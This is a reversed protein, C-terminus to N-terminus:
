NDAFSVEIWDTGNWLLTLVDNQGLTRNTNGACQVNAGDNVTVTNVDSSGVLLLLQGVASGDAIATTGSLTVAGGGGAVLIHSADAAISAGAALGTRSVQGLAFLNGVNVSGAFDSTGTGEVTLNGALTANGNRRVAFQVAVGDLLELIKATGPM